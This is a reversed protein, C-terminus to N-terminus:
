AGSEIELITGTEFAHVKEGLMEKLIAFASAGTCHGTYIHEVQCNKLREGFQRVKEESSSKLHFGGIIAYVHEDPFTEQVEKVINDAGGSCNNFIVLGKKTRFVLSQEHAFTDPYFRLGKRVYMRAARGLREPEEIKHPILWVDDALQYDGSVKVIRNQYKTLMGKPVGIYAKLWGHQSYCNQECEKRLYLKAKGNKEFFSDYGGSHDYHAHSLVAADVDEIAIGLKEANQKYQNTSGTDLLYQRGAFEIHVCLGWEGILGSAEPAKNEIVATVKMEANGEKKGMVKLNVVDEM